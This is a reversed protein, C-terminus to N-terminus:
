GSIPTVRYREIKPAAPQGSYDSEDVRLWSGDPTRVYLMGGHLRRADRLQGTAIERVKFCKM